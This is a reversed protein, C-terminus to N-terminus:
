ICPIAIKKLLKATELAQNRSYHFDNFLNLIHAELYRSNPTPTNAFYGDGLSKYHFSCYLNNRMLAEYCEKANELLVQYRWNCYNLPLSGPIDKYIENIMRKHQIIGKMATLVNSFYNKNKLSDMNLWKSVMISKEISVNKKHCQKIHKEFLELDEECYDLQYEVYDSDDSIYGFGGWGIDVCKVNGTSYLVLDALQSRNELDPFCLCRDDVFYINPFSKKISGIFNNDKESIYGYTRNYHIVSINKTYLLKLLSNRDIQWDKRSIDCIIPELGLKMYTAPITECINAPIVVCGSLRKTKVCNYLISCARASYVRKM